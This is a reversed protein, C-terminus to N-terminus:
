HGGSLLAGYYDANGGRGLTVVAGDLTLRSRIRLAEEILNPVSTALSISAEAGVTVDRLTGGRRVGSRIIGADVTADRVTGGSVALFRDTLLAFTFSVSLTGDTMRFPMGSRIEHVEGADRVGGYRGEHAGTEVR